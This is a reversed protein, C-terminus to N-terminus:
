RRVTPEKLSVFQDPYSNAPLIATTGFQAAQKAIAFRQSDSVKMYNGRNSKSTSTESTSSAPLSSLCNDKM